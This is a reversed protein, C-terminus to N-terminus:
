KKPKAAQGNQVIFSMGFAGINLYPVFDWQPTRARFEAFAHEEGARETASFNFFDDFAIMMGHRLRPELFSLVDMTSSYMDCDVYALAIKSPPNPYPFKGLSESYFGKIATYRGSTIHNSACIKRFQELQPLWPVPLGSQISMQGANSLPCARLPILRGFIHNADM